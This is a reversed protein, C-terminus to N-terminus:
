GGAHNQYNQHHPDLAKYSQAQRPRVVHGQLLQIDDSLILHPKRTLKGLGLPIYQPWFLPQPM